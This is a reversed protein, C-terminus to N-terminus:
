AVQAATGKVALVLLDGFNATELFTAINGNPDKTKWEDLKNTERTGIMVEYNHKLFGTALAQGITGSGLIGIKM